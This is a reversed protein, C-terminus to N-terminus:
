NIVFRRLELLYLFYLAAAQIVIPLIHLYPSVKDLYMYDPFCKGSFHSFNIVFEMEDMFYILYTHINPNRIFSNIFSIGDWDYIYGAKLLLRSFFFFFLFLEPKFM